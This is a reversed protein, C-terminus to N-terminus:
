VARIDTLEESMIALHDEFVEYIERERVLSGDHALNLPGRRWDDSVPNVLLGELHSALSKDLPAHRIGARLASRLVLAAPWWDLPKNKLSDYRKIDFWKFDSKRLLKKPPIAEKGGVTKLASDSANRKAM